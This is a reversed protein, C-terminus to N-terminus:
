RFFYTFGFGGLFQESLSAGVTTTQVTGTNVNDGYILSLGAMVHLSFSPTLFVRALMGPEVLIATGSPGNNSTSFTAFGLGGGLSFDSRPGTHLHFWGRGGFKFTTITPPNAVAGPKVSNFGFLGEIHWKPQDYVAEVGNVGSLFAAAGVGFGAGAGSGGAITAEQARASRPAAVTLAFAGVVLVALISKTM